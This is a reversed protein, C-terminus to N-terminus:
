QRSYRVLSCLMSTKVVIAKCTLSATDSKMCLTSWYSVSYAIDKHLQEDHFGWEMGNLYEFKVSQLMANGLDAHEQVAIQLRDAQEKMSSVISQMAADGIDM